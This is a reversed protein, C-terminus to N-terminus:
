PSSPRTTCVRASRRGRVTPFTFLRAPLHCQGQLILSRLERLLEKGRDLEERIARLERFRFLIELDFQYSIVDTARAVAEWSRLTDAGDRLAPVPPTPPPPPPLAGELPGGTEPNRPAENQGGCKETRYSAPRAQEMLSSSPPEANGLKERTEPCPEEYGPVPLAGTKSEGTLGALLQRCTFCDKRGIRAATRNCAPGATDPFCSQGSTAM